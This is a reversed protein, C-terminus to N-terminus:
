KIEKSIEKPEELFRSYSGLEIARKNLEDLIPEWVEPTYLNKEWILKDDETMKITKFRNGEKVIVGTELALDLLGYYKNIGDAFSILIEGTKFPPTIRNKTSTPKLIMGSISKDDEKVKQKKFNVTISPNYVAGEGGSETEGAYPNMPNDYTHNIVVFTVGLKVLKPTLVRFLSRISKGRQGMDSAKKDAEADAQEKSSGLNGLSDLILLLKKDAYKEEYVKLLKFVQNRFEDLDEIAPMYLIKTTDIGLREAFDKDMANETDIWVCVYDKRQADAVICSAVVSKGVGSKGQLVVVRGKPIGKYFDGSCVYNLVLSGTNIYESVNSYANDSLIDVYPNIKKLEKLFDKFM